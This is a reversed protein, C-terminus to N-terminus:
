YSFDLSQNCTFSIRTELTSLYFIDTADGDGADELVMWGGEEAM